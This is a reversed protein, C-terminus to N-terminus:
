EKKRRKKGKKQGKRSGATKAVRAKRTYSMFVTSYRGVRGNGRGQTRMYISVSCPTYTIHGLEFRQQQGLVACVCLAKAVCGHKAKYRKIGKQLKIIIKITKGESEM